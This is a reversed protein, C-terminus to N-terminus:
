DFENGRIVQFSRSDSYFDFVNARWPLVKLDNSNPIEKTSAVEDGKQLLRGEWGGVHAKTNTSFSDLWSVLSFGGHVALYGFVGKEIRTFKLESGAPVSISQNIPVSRGNLEANFNAGSLAILAPKQFLLVSAPFCFELFADQTSNALM